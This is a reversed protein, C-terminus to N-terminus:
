RGPQPPGSPPTAWGDAAHTGPRVQTVPQACQARFDDTTRIVILRHGAARGFEVQVGADRLNPIVRRLHGSLTQANRPWGRTNRRRDDVFHNLSELLDTARGTWERRSGARLWELLVSAVQSSELAVESASERNSQYQQLFAGPLVGMATEAATAWIAFDAMRPRSDLRVNPLNRLATSVADYLAGLLQSHVASFRDWFLAETQRQTDTIRDLTVILSRDLLDARVALEEIGNLIIPRTSDFLFEDADTYLERASFGGGTSLRCFADSLWPPLYSMNDFSMIWGNRAAIMLERADRPESRLEARNPDLLRRLVRTATSKATGQEGHLTLVPFLGEPRAAAVLWGAILPWQNDDVNIFEGLDALTGGNEPDPLSLTGKARIFKIPPNAVIHWGEPTIEVARWEPDGLDIFIQGEAGRAVRAHVPQEEGDFRARGSLVNLADSMAQSNPVRGLELYFLRTLYERFGKRHLPWTEYHGHQEIRAFPEGEQDHFLDVGEALEVLLSAQSPRGGPQTSASRQSEAVLEEHEDAVDAAEVIDTALHAFRGEEVSLQQEVRRLFQRRERDSDTQIIDRHREQDGEMAILLRGSAGNRPGAHFSISRTTTQDTSM